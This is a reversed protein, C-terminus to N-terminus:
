RRVRDRFHRQLVVDPSVYAEQLDVSWYKLEELPIPTGTVACRVFAGPRLVRFDGDLYKVGAEGSMPSYRNLVYRDGLRRDQAPQGVQEDHSATGGVETARNLMITLGPRHLGEFNHDTEAATPALCAVAGPICGSGSSRRPYIVIMPSLAQLDTAQEDIAAGCAAPDLGRM